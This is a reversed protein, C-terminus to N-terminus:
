LRHVWRAYRVSGGTGWVVQGMLTRSGRMRTLPSGMTAKVAIDGVRRAQGTVVEVEVVWLDVATDITNLFVVHTGDPAWTIPTIKM